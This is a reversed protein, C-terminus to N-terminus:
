LSTLWWTHTSCICTPAGEWLKRKREGAVDASGDASAGQQSAKVDAVNHVPDVGRVSERQVPAHGQQRETPFIAERARQEPTAPAEPGCEVSAQNCPENQHGSQQQQQCQVQGAAAAVHMPAAGPAGNCVVGHIGPAVDDDRSKEPAQAPTGRRDLGEM